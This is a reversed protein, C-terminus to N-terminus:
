LRNKSKFNNNLEIKCTDLYIFQKVSLKVLILKYLLNVQNIVNYFWVYM